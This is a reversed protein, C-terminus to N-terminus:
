ALAGLKRLIEDAGTEAGLIAGDWLTKVFAPEEEDDEIATPLASRLVERDVALVGNADGLVVDGPNIAAGACAVPVNIAGNDIGHLKTTLVSTGYAYVPLGLGRLAEIDTCVGDIVVGAAGRAALANAVVAGLPARLRDNGTHVVLVDGTRVRSAVHHLLTSDTPTLSVTVAVGVMRRDGAQRRLDPTTFGEELTHGLTPFDVRGILDRLDDDLCPPMPNILIPM